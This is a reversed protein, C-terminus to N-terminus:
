NEIENWKLRVAVQEAPNSRTYKHYNLNNHKINMLDIFTRFSSNIVHVEKSNEILYATDLISINNYDTISILRINPNIYERKVIRDEDKNFVDEHIFTYEENDKLGLIDYFIEKEKEMNREFYFNDWKLNFPVNANFYWQKDFMWDENYWEPIPLNPEAYWPNIADFWAKTHAICHNTLDDASYPEDILEVNPISSYLRTATKFKYKSTKDTRVEIRDHHKAFEKLIGYCICQDGIGDYTYVKFTM